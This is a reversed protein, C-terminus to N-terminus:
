KELKELRIRLEEILQSQIDMKEILELVIQFETSYKREKNLSKAYDIYGGKNVM